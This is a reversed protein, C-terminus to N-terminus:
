RIEFVASVIVSLETNKSAFGFSDSSKEDLMVGSAKYFNATRPSFNNDETEYQLSLLKGAKRKDGKLLADARNRANAVAEGLCKEIIPKLTEASSFMKFDSLYVNPTGAFKKMVIDINDINDSSIEISISTEIGKIDHKRAIDNWERKEYSDFSTTQAKLKETKLFETIENAKASAKKMSVSANKDLYRVNLTIATRDKPASTLCVGTTSVTRNNKSNFCFIHLFTGIVIISLLLLYLHKKM